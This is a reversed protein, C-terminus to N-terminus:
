ISKKLAEATKAHLISKLLPDQDLFPTLRHYLAHLFDQPRLEFAAGSSGSSTYLVTDALSNAVEFCKLLQDRGLPLLDAQTFGQLSFLLDRSVVAPFRFTMLEVYSTSSLLHRALAEQWIIMRMWEKTICYDAMRTSVRHGDTQQLSLVSLAGETEALGVASVDVGSRSRSAAIADFAAFLRALEVLGQVHVNPPASRSTVDPWHIPTVFSPALGLHMAYGRESVWLLTFLIERNVIVDDERRGDAGDAPTVEDLRLIRAGSLAEQIFMMASNRRNIKAHYVHLFFSVLVGRADLYERYNSEERVRLCERALLASDVPGAVDEVPAMQLQAMTAACLGTALAYTQPDTPEELRSLLAEADVVPWVSFSADGYRRVVAVLVSSAIPSGTLQAQPAGRGDLRDTEDATNIRDESPAARRVKPGRRRAPKLYTCAVQKPGSSCTNCPWAGSCKVKRAICEDCARKTLPPRM